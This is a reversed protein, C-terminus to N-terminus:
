GSWEGGELGTVVGMSLLPSRWQECQGGREGDMAGEIVVPRLHTTIYTSLHAVHTIAVGRCIGHQSYALLPCHVFSLPCSLLTMSLSPQSPTHSLTYIPLPGTDLTVLTDLAALWACLSLFLQYLGM